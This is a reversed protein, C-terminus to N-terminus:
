LSRTEEPHDRRGFGPVALQAAPPLPGTPRRERQAPRGPTRAGALRHPPQPPQLRQAPLQEPQGEEVVAAPCVSASRYSKM